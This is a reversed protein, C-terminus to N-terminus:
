YNWFNVQICLIISIPGFSKGSAASLILSREFCGLPSVRRPSHKRLLPPFDEPPIKCPPFLRCIIVSMKFCTFYPLDFTNTREDLKSNLLRQTFNRQYMTLFSYLWVEKSLQKKNGKKESKLLDSM